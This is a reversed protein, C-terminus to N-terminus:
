ELTSTLDEKNSPYFSGAVAAPRNKGSMPFVSNIASIAM